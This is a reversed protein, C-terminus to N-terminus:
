VRCRHGMHHGSPHRWCVSGRWHTWYQGRPPLRSYKRCQVEHCHGNCHCGLGRRRRLPTVLIPDSGIDPVRVPGTCRTGIALGLEWSQEWPALIRRTTPHGPFELWVNCYGGILLPRTGGTSKSAAYMAVYPWFSAKSAWSDGGSSSGHGHIVTFTGGATVVNLAMAKRPVIDMVDRVEETAVVDTRLVIFLGGRVVAASAAQYDVAQIMHYVHHRWQNEMHVVGRPDQLGKEQFLGLIAGEAKLVGAAVAEGDLMGSATLVGDCRISGRVIWSM